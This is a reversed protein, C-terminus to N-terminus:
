MSMGMSGTRGGVNLDVRRESGDCTSYAVPVGEVHWDWLDASGCLRVEVAKLGVIDSVDHDPLDDVGALCSSGTM